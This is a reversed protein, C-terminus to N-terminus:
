VQLIDKSGEYPKNFNDAPFINPGHEEHFKKLGNVTHLSCTYEDSLGFLQWSSHKAKNLLKSKLHPHPNTIKEKYKISTM